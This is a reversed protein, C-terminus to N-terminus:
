KSKRASDLQKKKTRAARARVGSDLEAKRLRVSKPTVEIIEDDSMYGILEEVSMKKPPATTLKDDKNVTRINSTAKARVPNVELDGTRSSEGIVMGAYVQDGLLYYYNSFTVIESVFIEIQNTPM